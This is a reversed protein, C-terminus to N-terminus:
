LHHNQQDSINKLAEENQQLLEAFVISVKEKIASMVVDCWQKGIPNRWRAFGYEQKNDLYVLVAGDCLFRQVFAKLVEEDTLENFPKNYVKM